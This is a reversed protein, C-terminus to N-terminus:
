LYFPLFSINYDIDYLTYNPQCQEVEDLLRNTLNIGTGGIVWKPNDWQIYCDNYHKDTVVKSAYVKDYKQSEIPSYLEVHHGFQKYYSSIKMLTLNPIKSDVDFLGINM